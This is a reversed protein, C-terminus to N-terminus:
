TILVKLIMCYNHALNMVKIMPTQAESCWKREHGAGEAGVPWVSLVIWLVRWKEGCHELFPLFDCFYLM